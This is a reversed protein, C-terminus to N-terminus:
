AAFASGTYDLGAIYRKGPRRSEYQQAAETLESDADAHFVLKM